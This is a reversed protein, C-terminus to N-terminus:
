VVARWLLASVVDNASLRPPSPLSSLPESVLAKAASVVHHPVRIYRGSTPPLASLTADDYYIDRGDEPLVTVEPHPFTPM